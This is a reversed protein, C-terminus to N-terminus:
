DTKPSRNRFTFKAFVTKQLNDDDRTSKKM